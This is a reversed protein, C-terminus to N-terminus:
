RGAAAEAVRDSYGLDGPQPAPTVNAARLAMIDQTAESHLFSLADRLLKEIPNKRMYGAAGWLELAQQCVWVSNEAATMKAFMPARPDRDERQASWAARWLYARTTEIKEAMQALRRAQLQHEVIPVGGQVRQHAFQLALEYARQAVGLVTAGAQINSGFQTLLAGLMPLAGGEAGIRDRDPVVVDRLELTGNQVARQGLKDWVETCAFGPTDSSLIFSSLSSILPGERDTRGIIVYVKALGGNSIYRKTGNLVWEDGRREAYLQMGAGPAPNPLLNDSGATPETAALGILCSEDEMISPLWRARQDDSCVHSLMTLFKWTQDFAVAMGLDGYALQEGVMALTLVDAGEGGYEEPVSLTRLGRRSAERVVHWQFSREPEPIRDAEASAPVMVEVAFERALQRLEQQRATPEFEVM